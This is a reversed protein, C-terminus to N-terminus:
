PLSINIVNINIKTNNSNTNMTQYINSDNNINQQSANFNMKKYDHQKNKNALTNNNISSFITKPAFNKSTLGKSLNSM